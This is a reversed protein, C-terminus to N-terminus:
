IWELALHNFVIENGNDQIFGGVLLRAIWWPLSCTSRRTGHQIRSPCFPVQLTSGLTSLILSWQMSDILYISWFWCCISIYAYVYIYIFSLLLSACQTRQKLHIFEHTFTRQQGWKVYHVSLSIMSRWVEEMNSSTQPSMEDWPRQVRITRFLFVSCESQLFKCYLSVWQTYIYLVFVFCQM